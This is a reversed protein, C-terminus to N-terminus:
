LSNKLLLGSLPKEFHWAMHDPLIGVSLLEFIVITIASLQFLHHVYSIDHGFFCLLDFPGKSSYQKNQKTKKEKKLLMKSLWQVRSVEPDRVSLWRHLLEKPIGLHLM